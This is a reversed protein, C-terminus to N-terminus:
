LAVRGLNNFSNARVRESKMKLAHNLGLLAPSKSPLKKQPSPPPGFQGGGTM